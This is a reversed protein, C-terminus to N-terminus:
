IQFVKLDTQHFWVSERSQINNQQLYIENKQDSWLDFVLRPESEVTPYTSASMENKDISHRLKLKMANLSLGAAGPRTCFRPSQFM